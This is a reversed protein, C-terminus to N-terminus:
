DCWVSADYEGREGLRWEGKAKRWVEDIKESFIQSHEEQGKERGAALCTLGNRATSGITNGGGQGM